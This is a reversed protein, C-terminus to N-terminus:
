QTHSHGCASGVPCVALASRVTLDHVTTQPDFQRLRDRYAMTLQRARDAASHTEFAYGSVPVPRMGCQSCVVRYGGSVTSLEEIQRRLTCLQRM